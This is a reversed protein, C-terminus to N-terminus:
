DFSAVPKPMRLSLRSSDILEVIDDEKPSLKDSTIPPRIRVNVRINGKIEQIDHILKREEVRMKSIQSHIRSTEVESQVLNNEEELIQALLQKNKDKVHDLQLDLQREEAELENINTQIAELETLEKKLQKKMAELLTEEERVLPELRSKEAKQEEVLRKLSQFRDDIFEKKYDFLQTMREYKTLKEEMKYATNLFKELIDEQQVIQLSLLQNVKDFHQHNSQVLPSPRTEPSAAAPLLLNQESQPDLQFFDRIDSKHADFAETLLDTHQLEELLNIQEELEKELSLCYSAVKDFEKSKAGSDKCAKSRREDIM